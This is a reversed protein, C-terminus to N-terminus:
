AAKQDFKQVSSPPLGGCTLPQLDPFFYRYLKLYATVEFLPCSRILALLRDM